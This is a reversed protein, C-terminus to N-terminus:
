ALEGLWSVKFEHTPVTFEDLWPVTFEDLWSVGSSM